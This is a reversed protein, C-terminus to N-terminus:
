SGNREAEDSVLIVSVVTRTAERRARLRADHRDVIRRVIGLGLGGRRDPKSSPSLVGRQDLTDVDFGPGTDSVELVVGSRGLPAVAIRLDGGDPMADAANLVLNLVLQELEAPVGRVIPLRDGIDIAVDIRGDISSWVLEVTSRVLKGFDIMEFTPQDGRVHAVLTATLRMAKDTAVRLQHWLKPDNPVRQLVDTTAGIIALYNNLDHAVGAALRGVVRMPDDSDATRGAVLAGVVDRLEDLGRERDVFRDAGAELHRRWEERTTKNGVVVISPASSVDRAAAILDIGDGDPLRVATVVIDPTNSALARRASELDAVAGQVAVLSVTELAEVIQKRDSRSGDVVLVKMM